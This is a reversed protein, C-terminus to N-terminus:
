LSMNQDTAMRGTESGGALPLRIIIRCGDHTEADIEITGAHQNVVDQVMPLGMGARGGTAGKTTFFPEFVKLRLADPIGPGSDEIIVTISGDETKTAVCLERRSWGPADMADMANDILQKFMGRLRGQRGPLARLHEEPRWDVVMGAALMRHTSIALVDRLLQNLNVSSVPEDLEGPMSARLIELAQRGTDLAQKLVGHMSDLDDGASGRRAQMSAAAAILNVPEQMKYAAGALAERLGQVLEQEALLARLANMRIEEQQRKFETIEKAVLLLYCEERSEFFNDANGNREQFWTGSCAFCRPEGSLEPDFRIEHDVFGRGCERGKIFAEGMSAKLASLLVAAPERDRLDGALRQYAQNSLVVHGLDDLLAIVVPAVDVVSEILRKQNRVEQELRHVATVDRHMGLYHTTKGAADVVPAITIDALYRTGDKRRNVLVGSWPKQQRLRGWLTEYVIDPTTKDSLISENSGIVDEPAYGTVRGFAPNAYLINAKLDTISIAVSSQEVAEFFLRPPLMCRGTRVADSFAEIMDEPIGEPPSTLFAQLAEALDGPIVEYGRESM